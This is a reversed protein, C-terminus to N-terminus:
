FHGRDNVVVGIVRMLRLHVLVASLLISFFIPIVVHVGTSGRSRITVLLILLVQILLFLSLGPLFLLILKQLLPIIFVRNIPATIVFHLILSEVIVGFRM